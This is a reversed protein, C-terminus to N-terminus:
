RQHPQNTAIRQLAARLTEGSAKLAKQMSDPDPKELQERWLKRAGGKHKVADQRNPHTFNSRFFADEYRSIADASIAPPLEVNGTCIRGGNWVNFHPAHCLRTGPSPRENERLAFVFWDSPTAIFVLPPHAAPGHANLNGEINSKFWTTRVAAPTWWALLNPSTFLLNGPLFGSFATAASVAQAFAALDAQSMPVGAGITKRQQGKADIQIPHATAYVDGRNSRYLLVARELHLTTDGESIIPVSHKM